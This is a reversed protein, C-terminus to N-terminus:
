CLVSSTAGSAMPISIPVEPARATAMYAAIASYLGIGGLLRESTSRGAIM